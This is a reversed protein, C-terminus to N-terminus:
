AVRIRLPIGDPDALEFGDPRDSIAVAADELRTRVASLAEASPVVLEFWALGRGGAPQSRGNWTNIGLHHHYAGAALFLASGADMTVHFGLTEVYFERAAALSTAELHVHGVTSGPPVRTAGDSQSAVDALDLPVTGIRITGDDSLEWAERPRDCYLEVGNGEPDDLYLAESVFHDSAGTLEWRDHIRDLAAGLAARSPVLFANHFLGAQERHRPPADADQDLVLLPTEDAGLTASTASATQITLGVVDRYFEIMEDLDSVLLATRGIRTSAPVLSTRTM